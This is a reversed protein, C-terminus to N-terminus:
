PATMECFVLISLAAALITQHGEEMDDFRNQGHKIAAVVRGVTALFLESQNISNGISGQELVSVYDAGEWRRGVKEINWGLSAIVSEALIDENDHYKKPPSTTAMRDILRILAGSFTGEEDVYSEGDWILEWCSNLHSLPRLVAYDLKESRAFFEKIRVDM